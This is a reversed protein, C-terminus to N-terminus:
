ILFPRKESREEKKIMMPSLVPLFRGGQQGTRLKQNALECNLSCCYTAPESQFAFVSQRLLVMAHQLSPHKKFVTQTQECFFNHVAVVAQTLLLHKSENRFGQKHFM